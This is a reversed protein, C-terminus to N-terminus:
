GVKSKLMNEDTKLNKYRDDEDLSTMWYKLPEKFKVMGSSEGTKLITYNEYLQFRKIYRWFKRITMNMIREETTDLAIILSDIYDEIDVNEENKNQEREAKKLRQETDYNLFEDIDFDIGNQLIIIRRIDDLIESTITEGNISLNGTQQDITVEANKCCLHLLQIFYIFYQSLNDIKYEEELEKNNFCYILFEMYTMKILKKDRFISDKRVTISKSLAQFLLIDNMTVPFLTIHEDYEIPKNYMLYPLLYDKNIKVIKIMRM